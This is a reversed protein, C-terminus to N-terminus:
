TQQRKAAFAEIVAPAQALFLERLKTAGPQSPSFDLRAM